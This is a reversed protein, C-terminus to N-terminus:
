STSTSNLVQNETKPVQQSMFLTENKPSLIEKEISTEGVNINGVDKNRGKNFSTGESIASRYASAVNKIEPLSDGLGPASDDDDEQEM